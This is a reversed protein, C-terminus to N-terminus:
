YKYEKEIKDEFSAAARDFEKVIDKKVIIICDQGAYRKYARAVAGTGSNVIKSDFVADIEIDKLKLNLDKNNM